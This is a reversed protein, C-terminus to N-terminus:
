GQVEFDDERLLATGDEQLVWLEKTIIGHAKNMRWKSSLVASTEDIVRIEPEIYAVEAFGDAIIKDWLAQIESRGTFTGFPTANMVATEEYAAACAAGDGANFAAQWKGSASKVAALVTAEQESTM